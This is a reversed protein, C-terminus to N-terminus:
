IKEEYRKVNKPAFIGSKVNTNQKRIQEIFLEKLLTSIPTENVPTELTKLFYPKVFYRDITKEIDLIAKPNELPYRDIPNYYRTTVLENVRILINNVIAPNNDNIQNVRIGEALIQYHNM